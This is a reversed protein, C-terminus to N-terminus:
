NTLFSKVRHIFVKYIYFLGCFELGFALSNFSLIYMCLTQLFYCHFCREIGSRTEGSLTMTTQLM